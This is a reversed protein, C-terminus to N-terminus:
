RTGETGSFSFLGELEQKVKPTRSAWLAIESRTAFKNPAFDKTGPILGNQQATILAPIAFHGAPVDRFPSDAQKDPLPLKAARVILVIAEARTVKKQPYFNGDVAGPMLRQLGVAYIYQHNPTKATVDRFLSASMPAEQARPLDALKACVLAMEGRLIPQAPRFTATLEGFYGLLAVSEIDKKSSDKAKIDTFGPLKVIHLTDTMDGATFTFVNKGNKLPAVAIFTGKKDVSIRTKNMLVNAVPSEGKFTCQKTYLISNNRPSLVRFTTVSSPRIAPQIMKTNLASATGTYSMSFGPISAEQSLVSGTVILM